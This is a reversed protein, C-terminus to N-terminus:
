GALPQSTGAMQLTSLRKRLALATMPRAGLAAVQSARRPMGSALAPVQFAAASVLCAAAATLRCFM